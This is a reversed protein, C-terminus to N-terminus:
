HPLHSLYFLSALLYNLLYLYSTTYTTHLYIPLAPYPLTPLYIPVTLLPLSRQTYYYTLHPGHIHSEGERERKLETQNILLLLPPPPLPLSFPRPQSTPPNQALSTSASLAVGSPRSSHRAAFCVVMKGPYPHCLM